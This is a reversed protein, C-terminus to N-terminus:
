DGALLRRVEEDSVQEFDEYWLGIARLDRPRLLCVVEDFDGGLEALAEPAAVPVALILHGPGEARLSRAAARATGGTALGDDVLIVTRGAVDLRTRAGRLQALRAEVEASAQAVAAEVERESAGVRLVLDQDLFVQGDETVAGMGYERNWPVGVKRVVRVDLPARLARAVELAVPVGGRPLALVVPSEGAWEALEVALRRGADSRDRFKEM